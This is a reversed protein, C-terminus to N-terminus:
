RGNSLAKNIASVAGDLTTIKVRDEDKKRAAAAADRLAANDKKAADLQKTLEVQKAHEADAQQQLEQTQRALAEIAQEKAASEGEVKDIDSITSAIGRLASNAIHKAWATGIGSWAVTVVLALVAAGVALQLPRGWSRPDIM